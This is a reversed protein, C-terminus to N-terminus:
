RGDDAGHDRMFYGTVVWKKKEKKVTVYTVV